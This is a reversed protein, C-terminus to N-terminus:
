IYETGLEERLERQLARQYSGGPEIKGGPFEWMSGHRKDEARQAILYKGDRCIVAAVVQM